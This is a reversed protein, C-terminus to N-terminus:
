GITALVSGNNVKDGPQVAISHVTGDTPAKIHIEMKMSEMVLIDQGNKVPTGVDAILRLIVGPLNAKVPTTPKAPEPAAVPAPAAAAPAAAPAAAVPAAPMMAPMPAYGGATTNNIVISPLGQPAAITIGPSVDVSDQITFTYERGNVVTKMVVGCAKNNSVAVPQANAKPAESAADAKKENKRVGIPIKKPDKLFMVGKDECCSVIFVNEDTIPLGEQKLIAEVAKRGKKTNADDNQLVTKTTPALNLQESAIKMIEPDPAVPTKGFYGLVMRGYGDAIKKWKGFAMNNFAQQVYFQSVPTVSTGYGGCRVSDFMEAILDNYRDLMGNDRLMQTNATLAGGPMPSWIISPDVALAEPPLMYEAMCDRFVQEAKRIKDVDIDLDFDTGRLAHWATIIDPQCTGGSVPTMSLDIGDAGAELAAKYCLMAIGATEHTHFQIHTGAPLLKRARKVTEYVVAPTTTGSADKFCVRDFPIGADLIGKLRSEYFEPTHAGGSELGPPLGMLTVVVEHKLGADHICQGSWKLNEVDNLADFNRISSMGHKKFLDAHLKIMDSPQSKLGVVNVGRSLTQLDAGPANRRFEDMVAFADEQSYFYCSQFRAGGGAEFWRIGAEYAAAVAPMFDKAFVRAGYVSQFGDRFATCMFKVQKKSM